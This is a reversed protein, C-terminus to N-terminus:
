KLEKILIKDIISLYLNIRKEFRNRQEHTLSKFIQEITNITVKKNKDLKNRYNESGMQLQSYFHNRLYEDFKPQDRKKLIDILTYTWNKRQLRWEELIDITKNAGSKIIEIQMDNLRINLRKFGKKYRELIQDQFEVQSRKKNLNEKTELSKFYDEIEIVQSSNLTKSFETFSPIFYKGTESWLNSLETDIESILNNDRELDLEKLRSILGRIASFRNTVLWHQYERSFRDIEIKQEDSFEAFNKFYDSIYRDFREFVSAGTLACSTLFVSLFISFLITSQKKKNM